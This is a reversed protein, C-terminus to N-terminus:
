PTWARQALWTSRTTYKDRRRLHLVPFVFPVVENREPVSLFATFRSVELFQKNGLLSPSSQESHPTHLKTVNEDLAKPLLYVENKYAEFPGEVKVHSEDVTLRQLRCALIIRPRRCRHTTRQCLFTQTISDTLM